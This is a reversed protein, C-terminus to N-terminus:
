IVKGAAEGCMCNDGVNATASLWCWSTPTLCITGPPHPPVQALAATAVAAGIGFLLISLIPKTM